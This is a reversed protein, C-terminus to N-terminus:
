MRLLPDTFAHVVDRAPRSNADVAASRYFAGDSGNYSWGWRRLLHEWQGWGGGGGGGAATGTTGAFGNGLRPISSGGGGGPNSSNGNARRRMLGAQLLALGTGVTGGMGGQAVGTNGAGAAGMKQRVFYATAGKRLM